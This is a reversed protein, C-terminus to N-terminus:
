IAASIEHMSKVVWIVGEDPRLGVIGTSRLNTSSRLNQIARSNPLRIFSNSSHTRPVLPEWSIAASLTISESIEKNIPNGLLLMSGGRATPCCNRQCRTWGNWKPFILVHPEDDLIKRRWARAVAPRELRDCLAAAADNEDGKRHETYYRVSFDTGDLM